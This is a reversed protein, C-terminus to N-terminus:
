LCLSALLAALTARAGTLFLPAFGDLAARTAPLSGSFITMGIAGSGWGDISGKM